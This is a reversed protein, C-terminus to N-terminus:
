GFIQWWKKKIETKIKRPIFELEKGNFDLVYENSEFDFLRIKDSEISFPNKGELNVWIDRGSFRWLIEGNKTIRFIEIEGYIIFDEELKHFSFNTAFDFEKHWILGLTPISFCYIKNCIRIWIKDDEIIFSDDSITTAGGFEHIILSSIEIGNAKIIIGHKSNSRFENEECYVTKYQHLNKTSNLTHNEDDIVEIEFNKYSVNM